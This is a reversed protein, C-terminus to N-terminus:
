LCAIIPVMLKLLSILYLFESECKKHDMNKTSVESFCRKRDTIVADHSVASQEKCWTRILSEVTVAIKAINFIRSLM